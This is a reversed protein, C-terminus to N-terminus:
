SNKFAISAASAALNKLAFSIDGHERWPANAPHHQNLMTGVGRNITTNFAFTSAFLPKM